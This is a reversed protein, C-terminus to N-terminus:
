EGNTFLAFLERETQTLFRKEKDDDDDHMGKDDEDDHMGKDEDESDSFENNEINNEKLYFKASKFFYM